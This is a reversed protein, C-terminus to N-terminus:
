TNLKSKDIVIISTLNTTISITEGEDYIYEYTSYSGTDILGSSSSGRWRYIAIKDAPVLYNSSTTVITIDADLDCIFGSFSVSGNVIYSVLTAGAPLITPHVDDTIYATSTGTSSRTSQIFKNNSSGNVNIGDTSTSVASASASTIYLVKGAPVTYMTESTSSSVNIKLYNALVNHPVHLDIHRHLATSDNATLEEAEAGTMDTAGFFTNAEAINTTGSLQSVETFTAGSQVAAIHGSGDLLPAKSATATSVFVTTDTLDVDIDGATVTIGDGGTVGAGTGFPSSSVGDDSFVWKSTASDYRWFPSNADGNFAYVTIDNDAANGIRWNEAGTGITGQLASVWMDYLGAYMNASIITGEPLDVANSSAGDFDIGGRAMGRVVTLTTGSVATVKLTETYTKKDTTLVTASIFFPDTISAGTEDLPEYNTKITTATSDASETITWQGNTPTAIQGVFFTSVKTQDAM